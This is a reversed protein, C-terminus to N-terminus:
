YWFSFYLRIVNADFSYLPEEGPPADTDLVNRFNDYSFDFYDWYLNVTSKDFLWLWKQPVDYTVGLGINDSQYESLEKDRAMFNQANQYPFLDSYFDAESQQYNRYKLEFLWRERWPHTYRLEWNSAQIGWSDEYYRYDARLSARYPLFYMARISAADSNRTEPYVEAQYSYGQEADPDLYRVQRYPNNLYGEDIASEVNFAAILSKTLIQSINLQYRRRQVDEEFEPNGNKGVVDEGYSFGFSLTTLDGFFSQSIGISGTQASYDNEESSTYGLSIITRDHLYETGLSYETRKESYESATALVDISASSVMDVYYNASVAVNTGINKRVLISPGDINAGGGDYSHYMVDLRDPDLVEARAALGVLLLVALVVIRNTVVM